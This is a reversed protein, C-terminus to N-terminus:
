SADPYKPENAAHDSLFGGRMDWSQLRSVIRRDDTM